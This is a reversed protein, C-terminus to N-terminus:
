GERARLWDVVRGADADPPFVPYHVRRIMGDEVIMTLRRLLTEGAVEMVPLSMAEALHLHADSLLPYPLGLREKAELQWATSQTSLGYVRAAGAAQLDSMRDRYACTQPTCGRAGPIADWGEPLDTGPQSTMPYAFLITIGPEVALRVDAGDTSPLPLDALALGELHDAAGDDDPAPLTTWDVENM